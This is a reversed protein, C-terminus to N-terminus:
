NVPIPGFWEADGAKVLKNIIPFTRPDFVAERPTIGRTLWGNREFDRVVNIPLRCVIVCADGPHRSKAWWAATHLADERGVDEVSITFLSGPAKSGAINAVNAEESLGNSLINDASSRTTGHAFDETGCNHVLVTGAGELVYYTHVEAVTLDRMWRAGTWTMAGIVVQATSGDADRLRTGPQLNQAEIWRHADANWFPHHWTTHLVSTKGTKEDKVTVDALDTDHNNHLATVPKAETQGTEPDTAKVKDGVKVDKIPETSGDAMVVKTDPDFSHPCGGGGGILGEMRQALGEFSSGALNKLNNAAVKSGFGAMINSFEASGAEQALQMGGRALGGLAASGV